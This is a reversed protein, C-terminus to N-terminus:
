KTTINGNYRKEKILAKLEEYHKDNSPIISWITGNRNICGHEIITELLLYNECSLKPLTILIILEFYDDNDPPINILITDDPSLYSNNIFTNFLENQRQATM